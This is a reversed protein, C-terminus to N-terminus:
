APEYTTLLWQRRDRWVIERFSKQLLGKDQLRQMFGSPSVASRSDHGFAFGYDNLRVMLAVLQRNNELRGEDTFALRRGLGYRLAKDPSGGLIIEGQSIEAVYAPPAQGRAGFEVEYPPGKRKMRICGHVPKLCTRCLQPNMGMAAGMLVTYYDTRESQGAKALGSWDAGRPGTNMNVTLASVPPPRCPASNACRDRLCARYYM